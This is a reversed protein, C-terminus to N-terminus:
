PPTLLTFQPTFDNVSESVEWNEDLWENIMIFPVGGQCYKIERAYKDYYLWKDNYFKKNKFVKGTKIAEVLNM